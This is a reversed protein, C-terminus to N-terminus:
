WEIPPMPSMISQFAPKEGFSSASTSEMRIPRDTAPVTRFYVGSARTAWISSWKVCYTPELGIADGATSHPMAWMCVPSPTHYGRAPM